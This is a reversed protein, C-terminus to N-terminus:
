DCRVSSCHDHWGCEPCIRLDLKHYRCKPCVGIDHMNKIRKYIGYSSFVVTAVFLITFVLAIPMHITYDGDDYLKWKYGFRWGADVVVGEFGTFGSWSDRWLRLQGHFIELNDNPGIRVSAHLICSMVVLTALVVSSACCLWLLFRKM